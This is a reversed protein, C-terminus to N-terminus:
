FNVNVGFMVSRMIPYYTDLSEPDWGSPCNNISFLDNGSVYLRLRKVFFKETIRGPFTYGITINKMRLYHNNFLWFDSMAFNSNANTQTLRPYKAHQNQAESNYPSWYKGAINQPFSYWSDKYGSAMNDTIREWQEGVGQIAMSADLGHWDANFTFGYIFHPMSSKLLVRDYEASIKGDPVGDPGSIDEYQLDGVKVSNNIKASKDVQEQTQYIGLSHYGYFQQYESGERTIANGDSRYTVTGNLNGMKSKANSLNFRAGYHFDGVKDRWGLELDWGNTHMDGANVNPNEYGLFMPIQVPLLMDTTKKRYLDFTFTLRSNLLVADLGVDWSSTTEWTIDRVAYTTQSAATASSAQGGNMLLMQTFDISTQYPYYSGIRENGLKGWSARVKLQDLWFRTPLMFKEESIVWGGSVSPFTAWRNDSSFRSSGDHRINFEFLYKNAYAYNLRGFWSRYAYEAANGTVRQYDSSALDLYPYSTLEFRDGSGSMNDYKYHYNEYGGLVNIDHLGFSKTYNVLVQTTFDSVKNRRETLSTTTNYYGSIVNPTELHTYGLRKNFTKIHNWEFNPAAILSIKLGDIPLIDVEGKFGIRNNDTQQRGSDDSMWALPNNGDKVDALRGDSWRALYVPPLAASPTRGYPSFTTNSNKNKRFNIDIHAQIYKNFTLDNNVRATYQERNLHAYLGEIRDYRLSVKTAVKDGGGLLNVSHTQRPASSKFIEDYWNTDGYLDPTNQRLQTYNDIVDQTYVQNEGGSQNDNYRLENAMKMFQVAGVYKPKATPSQSAYEYNYILRLDGKKARKTQILIVGAAARSGYIAASAADKLVSIQEVDDPNVMDLEGPVGDVIVLPDSTSITTVGRLRLTGSTGPEGSNRTVSLGSVAGQLATSIDTSHRDTLIQDNITGVAGTLDKKKMTGYGVVVVENLSAANESMTVTLKGNGNPRLTMPAFGIYTIDLRAGDDVSLAFNGNTDTVTGNQTGKEMVTAGIIPDGNQDTVIGTIRRKGQQRMQQNKIAGDEAKHSIIVSKGKIEYILPQGELIQEVAERVNSANVNVRKNVNVESEAFVFSFGTEQQFETMAQRVSVNSMRLPQGVAHLGISCSLLVALLAQKKNM